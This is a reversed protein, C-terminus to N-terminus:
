KIRIKWGQQFYTLALDFGQRTGFILFINKSTKIQV